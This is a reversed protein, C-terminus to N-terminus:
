EWTKFYQKFMSPEANQKIIQAQTWDPLGTKKLFAEASKIAQIKEDKSSEKGIWAFIGNSSGSNLIFCDKQDLMEQTPETSVQTVGESDSVHWLTVEGPKLTVLYVNEFIALFQAFFGFIDFNTM